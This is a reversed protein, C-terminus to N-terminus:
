LVTNLSNLSENLKKALIRINPESFMSEHDGPVLHCLINGSIVNEWWNLPADYNFIETLIEAKFLMLHCKLHPLKYHMLMKERHWQLELLAESNSIQYKLHQELIRANQERMLEKFYDENRQLAPYEAWGDLSIIAKINENMNQLQKAIEIAITSGFSAGGILYPGKPQITQIAKIYSGAMQEINNFLLDQHELGPDQLGYLPFDEDLYKELDKYWFISGGIPHIFFIPTRIGTRRIPVIIRDSFSLEKYENNTALLSQEIELALSHITPHNFLLSMSIDIKFQDQIQTIISMAVLSHGGIEFFNDYIGIDDLNMVSCWISHLKNEVENQPPLHEKSLYLQKIPTLDHKRDLKGNSTILLKEVVFFRSPIMYDPLEHKLFNRIETATIPNNDVLVLFASLSLGTNNINEPKVLCQYICAIKDLCSEIESIEIRFGRIKVQSDEREHYEIIGKSQWKVLDGTKYLRKDKLNEFPNPLFKQQTLVENNLYGDALGEGSLYLEGLIGTPVLQLCRDLIYAKMNSIPKGIRNIPYDADKPSCTYTLSDITAETPGYLNHLACPSACQEYFSHIIEPLLIEGGCFVQKLSTCSVFRPTLTIERLMPPVLQLITVKNKIVLEILETPSKHAHVPAIVLTGGVWLPMFFEWVSADFSFPTKQLFIDKQTFNYASKMWTMHNCAAKHSVCVGKPTGTTGSTYIIYALDSPQTKIDPLETNFEQSQLITEVDIIKGEFGQFGKDALSEHTLLLPSGSNHLMYNIRKDPYTPDLPLYAAGAKLVGLISILMYMSRHIYIGVIDNPKIGHSILCHALQNSQEHLTKYTLTHGNFRAAIAQPVNTVQTEIAQHLLRSLDYSQETKNWQFLLCDKENRGIISLEFLRKDHDHIADELLVLLHEEMFNFFSYSEEWDKYNTKNDITVSSGDEAIYFNLKKCCKSVLPAIPDAITISIDIEEAIGHLEPYRVLIDKCYSDNPILREQEKHIFFLVERFSSSSDFHSTLPIHRSILGHLKNENKNSVPTYDLTFNNYNNLRYIYTLVLGVLISQALISHEHAYQNIQSLLHNPLIVKKITSDNTKYLHSLFSVGGHVSKLLEKVWFKEKNPQYLVPNNTLEQIHHPTLETLVQGVSISKQKIISEIPLVEGSLSMLEYFVIDTTLTAIQLDTASCHVITGSERGSSIGLKRYAKVIMIEDHLLVKPTVLENKYEGFTLARCLTDIAEATNNWSIFGYSEPKNKLGYYSRTSLDQKLLATTNSSLEDILENFAKVAHEYCKLNLSLATEDENISFRPQKLIEGADVQECMIHWTIAHEKEKNLLAWTTAYLGAYKPLPSNHYNIAAIRPYNLIKPKLITGNAISFLYDCPNNLCHTEFDKLSRVSPISNLSCWKKIKRSSSIIGLIHHNKARILSACELTINDDGILYCNFSKNQM